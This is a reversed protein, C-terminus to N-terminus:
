IQKGIHIFKTCFDACLKTLRKHVASYISQCGVVGIDVRTLVYIVHFIHGRVWNEGFKKARPGRKDEFFLWPDECGQQRLYLTDPHYTDM